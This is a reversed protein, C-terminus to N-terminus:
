GMKQLFLELGKRKDETLDYSINQTYYTHLNYFPYENESIVEKLSQLGLANAENFAAVFAPSLPKNSVWAAFVFPLGTHDVWAAALDYVYASRSRQKLARDGIIIAATTGKIQQEYDDGSADILRVKTQWYERLLVRALAVSTRSQYDLYLESIEEMPVESFICVSAVPGNAGICYDTIIHAQPLAPIVAVPILALDAEDAVLMRAILAPYDEVLTIQEM